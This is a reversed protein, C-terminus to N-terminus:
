DACYLRRKRLQAARNGRCRRNAEKHGVARARLANPPPAATFLSAARSPCPQGPPLRSLTVQWLATHLGIQAALRAHSVHMPSPPRPASQRPWSARTRRNVITLSEWKLVLNNMDRLSVNASALREKTNLYTLLNDIAVYVAVSLTVWEAMQLIALLSGATTVMLSLTDLVLLVRALKPTSHELTGLIPRVRHTM